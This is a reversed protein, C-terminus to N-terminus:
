RDKRITAMKDHGNARDSGPTLGRRPAALGRALVTVIAFDAAKLVCLVTIACTLVIRLGLADRGAAAVLALLIVPLELPFLMLARWTLADPHNPQILVAFFILAPLGLRLAARVSVGSM